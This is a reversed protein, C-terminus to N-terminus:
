LHLDLDSELGRPQKQCTLLGAYHLTALVLVDWKSACGAMKLNSIFPIKSTSHGESLIKIQENITICTLVRSELTVEDEGHESSYAQRILYFSMGILALWRLEYLQQFSLCPAEQQLM